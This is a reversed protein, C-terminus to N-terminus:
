VIQHEIPPQIGQNAETVSLRKDLKKIDEGNKEGQDELKTLIRTHENLIKSHEKLIKSHSELEPIIQTDVKVTLEAVQDFTADVKEVLPKNEERVIKRVVEALRNMEDNSM